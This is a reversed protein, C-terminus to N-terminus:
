SLQESGARYGLFIIYIDSAYFDNQINGNERIHFDGINLDIASTICEFMPYFYEPICISNDVDGEEAEGEGWQFLLDDSAQPVAVVVAVLVALAVAATLLFPLGYL